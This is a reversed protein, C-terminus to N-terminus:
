PHISIISRLIVYGACESGGGSVRAGVILAQRGTPLFFAAEYLLPGIILPREIGIGYHFRECLRLLSSITKLSSNSQLYNWMHISVSLFIVPQM